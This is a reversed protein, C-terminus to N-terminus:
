EEEIVEKYKNILKHGKLTCIGYLFHDLMAVQVDAMKFKDPPFVVPNFGMDIQEMRMRALIKINIDSRIYKQKVGKTLAKEVIRLICNEKFEKFLKWSAPYYKQLDYFVNPNVRSFVKAMHKMMNLVEEIVNSSVNVIHEFDKEDGKLKEKLLTHVIDDKDSFSRYVTKKSIGLHRAIDDMTISRIGYRLFLEEAGKLIRSKLEM